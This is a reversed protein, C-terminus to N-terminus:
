GGRFWRRIRGWLSPAPPAADRPLSSDARFGAWCHPCRFWVWGLREAPAEAQIGCTPCAVWAATKLGYIVAVPARDSGVTSWKASTGSPPAPPHAPAAARSDAKFPSDCNECRFWVWGHEARPAPARTWCKPCPAYATDGAGYIRSVPITDRPPPPPPPAPAPPRAPPASGGDLGVLFKGDCLPCRLFDVVTAGAPIDVDTRRCQPCTVRRRGGTTVRVDSTFGRPLDSDPARPGLPAPPAIPSPVRPPPAPPPSGDTAVFETGCASCHVPVWGGAPPLAATTLCVPCAAGRGGAAAHAIPSLLHAGHSTVGGDSNAPSPAPAAPASGAGDPGAASGAHRPPVPPRPPDSGSPTM